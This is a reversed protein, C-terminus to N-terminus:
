SCINMEQVEQLLQPSRNIRLIHMNLNSSFDATSDQIIMFFLVLNAHGQTRCLSYTYNFTLVRGHM